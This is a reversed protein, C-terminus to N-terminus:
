PDARLGRPISAGGWPYRVTLRAVRTEEGLGFHIREDESSLYSSGARVERSLTTKGDALLVTVMAGPSFRSLKVDLWHGVTGTPKLLLLKGGISNVAIEV